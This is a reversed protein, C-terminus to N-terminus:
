AAPVCIPLVAEPLAPRSVPEQEQKKRTRRFPRGVGSASWLADSSEQGVSPQASPVGTATSGPQPVLAWTVPREAPLRRPDLLVSRSAWKMVMTELVAFKGAGRAVVAACLASAGLPVLKGIAVSACSVLSPSMPGPSIDVASQLCLPAVLRLSRDATCSATSPALAVPAAAPRGSVPRGTPHVRPVMAPNLPPQPGPVWPVATNM